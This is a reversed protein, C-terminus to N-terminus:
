EGERADRKAAALYEDAGLDLLNNALEYGLQEPDTGTLQNRVMGDGVPNAVLGTLVISDDQRTEAYGALPVQCSGQLKKLLAREARARRLTAADTWAELEARVEEDLNRCEVGLIGQGVAPVCADTSLYETVKDAWGMRLLGAAALVIADFEGAEARRLRSDINGRLPEIKLDPRQSRLQVARRLSSTGVVAGQPLEMLTLGRHSILADRPDEGAPIGALALGEALEYPVDKLSHVALDAQNQTLVDEIESVFLGKGGVKSLTVNLVKDGKTTIPVIEFSWDSRRARLAEIVWKTQTMALQSTRSAVRIRRM